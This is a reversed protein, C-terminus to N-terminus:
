HSLNFRDKKEEAVKIVKAEAKTAETPAAVKKLDAVESRLARLESTIEKLTDHTRHLRLYWSMFERLALLFAFSIVFLIGLLTLPSLGSARALINLIEM